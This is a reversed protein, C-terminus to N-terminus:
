RSLNEREGWWPSKSVPLWCWARLNVLDEPDTPCKQFLLWLSACVTEMLCESTTSSPDALPVLMGWLAPRCRKGYFTGWGDVHPWVRTIVGIIRISILIHSARKSDGLHAWLAMNIIASIPGSSSSLLLLTPALPLLPDTSLKGEEM